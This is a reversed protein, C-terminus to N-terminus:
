GPLKLFIGIGLGCGLGNLDSETPPVWADTYKLALTCGHNFVVTRFAKGVKVGRLAQEVVEDKLIHGHPEM